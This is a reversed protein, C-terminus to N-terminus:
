KGMIKKILNIIKGKLMEFINEESSKTPQITPYKKVSIYQPVPMRGTPVRYIVENQTEVKFYGGVAYSHRYKEKGLV